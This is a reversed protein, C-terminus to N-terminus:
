LWQEYQVHGKFGLSDRVVDRDLLDLSWVFLAHSSVCRM